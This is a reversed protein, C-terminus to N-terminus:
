YKGPEMSTHRVRLIRVITDKYRYAIRYHHKEFLGASGNM